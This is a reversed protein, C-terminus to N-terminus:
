VFVESHLTGSLSIPHNYNALVEQLSSGANDTGSVSWMTTVLEALLEGSLLRLCLRGEPQVDSREAQTAPTIHGHLNM